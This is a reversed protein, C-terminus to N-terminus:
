LYLYLDQSYRIQKIVSKKKNYPYDKLDVGLAELYVWYFSDLGAEISISSAGGFRPNCEIIHIQNNSDVIAQLIVHGYVNLHQIAPRIKLEIEDDNFTTTIQSEGNIVLNRQRLILGKIRKNMDVYCDISIEYGKILPQFIPSCLKESHKIAENRSLNIGISLSGAGFREKVVFRDYSCDEITDSTPIFYGELAGNNRSFSLKDICKNISEIDSVMVLIGEQRLIDKNLSFFALENDRTPIVLVVKRSKCEAIFTKIDLDQDSPMKWFEDVFYRGICSENVDGGIVKIDVNYRKVSKKISEILPVKRSISTILIHM